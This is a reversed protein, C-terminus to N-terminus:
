VDHFNYCIIPEWVLEGQSLELAKAGERLFLPFFEGQAPRFSLSGRKVREFV